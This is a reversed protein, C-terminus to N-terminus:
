RRIATRPQGLRDEDVVIGIREDDLTRPAFLQDLDPDADLTAAISAEDLRRDLQCALWQPRLDRAQRHVEAATLRRATGDGQPHHQVADIWIETTNTM